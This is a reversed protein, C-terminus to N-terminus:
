TSGHGIHVLCYSYVFSTQRRLIIKCNCDITLVSKGAYINSCHYRKGNKAMSIIGTGDGSKLCYMCLLIGLYFM